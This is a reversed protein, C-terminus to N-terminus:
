DVPSDWTLLALHFNSLSRCKLQGRAEVYMHTLVWECAHIHMLVWECAHIDMLLWKCAHIHIHVFMWECVHIHM